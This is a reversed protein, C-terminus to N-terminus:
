EGINPFVTVLEVNDMDSRILTFVDSGLVRKISGFYKGAPIDETATSPVTIWATGDADVDLVDDGVAHTVQLVNAASDERKKLTFIFSGGTIDKAPSHSIKIRFSGGQVFDKVIKIKAM